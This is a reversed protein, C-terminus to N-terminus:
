PGNDEFVLSNIYSTIDRSGLLKPMCQEVLSCSDCASSYKAKPTIGSAYVSQMEATLRHTERRLVEDLKVTERRRVRGYFIAGEMIRLGFTEELCIAQACLQVRDCHSVKPHGLKYEVPYPIWFGDRGELKIGRDPQRHFEVMDAVGFLQLSMSSIPVSRTIIRDGRTESFSSDDVREHLERGSFTLINEQWLQELYILAWQRPCFAYHQIGSLQLYNDEQNTSIEDEMM